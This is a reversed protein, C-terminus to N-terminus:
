AVLVNSMRLIPPRRWMMGIVKMVKPMPVSASAPIMGKEPKQDM